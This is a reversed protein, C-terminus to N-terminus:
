GWRMDGAWEGGIVEGVDGWLLVGGLERCDCM